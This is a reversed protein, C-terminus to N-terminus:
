FSGESGAMEGDAIVRPKSLDMIQGSLSSFGEGGEEEEPKSSPESAKVTVPLEGSRGAVGEEEGPVAQPQAHAKDGGELPDEPVEVSVPQLGESGEAM